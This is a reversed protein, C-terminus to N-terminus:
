RFLNKSTITEKIEVGKSAAYIYCNSIDNEFMWALIYLTEYLNRKAANHSLFQHIYSFSYKLLNWRPASKKLLYQSYYLLIKNLFYFEIPFSCEIM